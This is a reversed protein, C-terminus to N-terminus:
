QGIDAWNLAGCFILREAGDVFCRQIRIHSEALGFVSQQSMLQIVIGPEVKAVVSAMGKCIERYRRRPTKVARPYRQNRVLQIDTMLDGSTKGWPYQQSIFDPQAFGNFRTQDNM